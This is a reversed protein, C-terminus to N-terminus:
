SRFGGWKEWKACSATSLKDKIRASGKYCDGKAGQPVNINNRLTSTFTREGAWFNCTACVKSSGSFKISKITEYLSSEELPVQVIVM